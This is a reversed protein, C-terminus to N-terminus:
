ERGPRRQANKQQRLLKLLAPSGQQNLPMAQVVESSLVGRYHCNPITGITDTNHLNWQLEKDQLRLEHM